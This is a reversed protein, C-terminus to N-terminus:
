VGGAIRSGIWVVWAVASMVVLVVLLVQGGSLAVRGRVSRVVALSHRGKTVAIILLGAATAGMLIETLPDIPSAVLSRM